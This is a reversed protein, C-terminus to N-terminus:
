PLSLGTDALSPPFNSAIQTTARRTAAGRIGRSRPAAAIASSRSEPVTCRGGIWDPEVPGLDAGLSFTTTDAGAGTWRVFCPVVVSGLVCACLAAALLEVAEAVEVLEPEVDEEDKPPPPPFPEFGFGGGFLVVGAGGLAALGIAGGAAAGFAGLGGSDRFDSLPGFCRVGGPCAAPCSFGCPGGGPCADM